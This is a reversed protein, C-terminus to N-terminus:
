SAEAKVERGDNACAPCPAVSLTRRRMTLLIAIVLLVVGITNVWELEVAFKGLLVVAAAGLGIILPFRHSSRRAHIALASLALALFILTSPLLYPTYDFFGFGLASLAAAYAPWCLPCTLKPLLATGIAPFSAIMTQWRGRGAGGRRSPPAGKILAACVQEIPPTSQLVGDSGLYVRCAHTGPSPSVGGVDQGNVLITPSGFDQVYAPSDRSGREWEKWRASVRTKTFARILLSRAAVVNPCDADYILEVKISM